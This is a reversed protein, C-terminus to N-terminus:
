RGRYKVSASSVVTPWWLLVVEPARLQDVTQATSYALPLDASNDHAHYVFVNRMNRYLFFDTRRKRRCAVVPLEVFLESSHFCDRALKKTHLAGRLKFRNGYLSKRLNGTNRHSM